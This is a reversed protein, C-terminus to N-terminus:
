LIRVVNQCKAGSFVRKLLRQGARIDSIAIHANVWMVRKNFRVAAFERGHPVVIEGAPSSLGSALSAVVAAVVCRKDRRRITDGERQCITVAEAWLNRIAVVLRLLLKGDSLVEPMLSTAWARIMDDCITRNSIQQSRKVADTFVYEVASTVGSGAGEAAVIEGAASDRMKQGFCRGTRSCIRTSDANVVIHTCVDESICM